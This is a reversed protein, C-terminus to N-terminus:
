RRAMPISRTSSASTASPRTTEAGTGIDEIAYFMWNAGIPTLKNYTNIIQV